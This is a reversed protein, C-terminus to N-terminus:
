FGIWESVRVLGRTASSLFIREAAGVERRTLVREEARGSELLGRRFTGPLCGSTLPPTQLQGQIELYVNTTAGECLEGRTNFFILEDVGGRRAEDLALLNEAYSLCKVGRLPSSENRAWSATAVRLTLPVDACPAVTVYTREGRGRLRNLSGAGATRAVRVRWRGRHGALRVEIADIVESWDPVALDLVRCGELLREGHWHASVISGDVALMTEFVGLGHTGGRDGPTPEGELIWTAAGEEM